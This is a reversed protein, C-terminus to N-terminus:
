ERGVVVIPAWVVSLVKGGRYVVMWTGDRGDVSAHYRVVDDEGPNEPPDEHPAGLFGEVTARDTGPVLGQPADPDVPSPPPPDTPVVVPPDVPGTPTDPAPTEVAVCGALVAALLLAAVRRWPTM